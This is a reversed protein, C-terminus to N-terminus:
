KPVGEQETFRGSTVIVWARFDRPVDVVGLLKPAPNEDVNANGDGVVFEMAVLVVACDLPM